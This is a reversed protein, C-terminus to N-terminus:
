AREEQLVRVYLELLMETVRTWSYCTAARRAAREGLARRLDARDLLMRIAAAVRAPDHPPVHLGTENDVVLGCLGGVASAVVPVGCAMAELAVM